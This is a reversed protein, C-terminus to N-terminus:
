KRKEELLANILNEVELFGAYRHYQEVFMNVLLKQANDGPVYSRSLVTGSYVIDSVKILGKKHLKKLIAQVTNISIDGCKVIESAILPKGASHIIKFVEYEKNTLM